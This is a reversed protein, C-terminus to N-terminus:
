KGRLAEIEDMSTVKTLPTRRRPTAAKTTRKVPAAVKAPSPAKRPARSLAEGVLAELPERHAACLDVEAEGGDWSITFHRIGDQTGCVDCVTVSVQAM